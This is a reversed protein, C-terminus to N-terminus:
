EHMRRAAGKASAARGQKRAVGPDGGGVPASLQPATLYGHERLYSTLLVEILSALSRHDDTAAKEAAAKVGPEVRIGIAATRAM